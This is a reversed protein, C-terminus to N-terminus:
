KPGVGAPAKVVVHHHGQDQNEKENRRPEDIVLISGLFGKSGLLVDQNSHVAGISPNIRDASMMQGAMAPLVVSVAAMLGFVFRALM